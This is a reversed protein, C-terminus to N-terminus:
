ESDSSTDKNESKSANLLKRKIDLAKRLADQAKRLETLDADLTKERQEIKAIFDKRQSGNTSRFLELRAEMLENQTKSLEKHAREVRNSNKEITKNSAIVKKAVANSSCPQSMEEKMKDIDEKLHRSKELTWAVNIAGQVEGAKFSKLNNNSCIEEAKENWFKRYVKQLGASGEIESETFIKVKRARAFSYSDSKVKQPHSHGTAFDLITPQRSAKLRKVTPGADTNEAQLAPEKVDTEDVNLSVVTATASEQSSPLNSQEKVLYIAKEDTQVDVCTAVKMGTEQKTGVVLHKNNVLRTFKYPFNLIDDVQEDLVNKRFSEVTIHEDDFIVSCTLEENVYVLIEGM